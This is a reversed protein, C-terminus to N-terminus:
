YNLGEWYEEPMPSFVYDIVQCDKDYKDLHITHNDFDIWYIDDAICWGVDDGGDIPSLGLFNYFDNVTVFAGLVFNRNTHYQAQLVRSITSTFHRKSYTDYFLQVEEKDNPDFDMSCTSFGGTATLYQRQAQEVALEKMIREHTEVGCIEKVKGQYRRYSRDVLAYASVLGAQMKSNLVGNGAICIITAAGTALTPWYNPLYVQLIQDKLSKSAGKDLVEKVKLTNKASIIATTIVGAASLVSLLISGAKLYKRKM